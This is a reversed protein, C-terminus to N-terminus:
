RRFNRKEEFIRVVKIFKDNEQKNKMITQPKILLLLHGWCASVYQLSWFWLNYQNLSLFPPFFVSNVNGCTVLGQFHQISKNLCNNSKERETKRFSKQKTKRLLPISFLVSFPLRKKKKKLGTSPYSCCCIAQCFTKNKNIQNILVPSFHKKCLAEKILLVQLSFTFSQM